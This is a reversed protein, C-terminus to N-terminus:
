PKAEEVLLGYLGKRPKGTHTEGDYTRVTAKGFVNTLIECLKWNNGDIYFNM